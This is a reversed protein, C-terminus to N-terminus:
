QKTLKERGTRIHNKKKKKKKIQFPADTQKDLSVIVALYQPKSGLGTKTQFASVKIDISTFGERIM